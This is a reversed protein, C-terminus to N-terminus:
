QGDTGVAVRRADGLDLLGRGRSSATLLALARYNFAGLRDGLVVLGRDLELGDFWRGRALGTLAAQKVREVVFTVLSVYVVGALGHLASISVWSLADPLLLDWRSRLRRNVSGRDQGCM